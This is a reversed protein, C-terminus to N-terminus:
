GYSAWNKVGANSRVFQLQAMDPAIISDYTQQGFVPAASAGFWDEIIASYVSRFDVHHRLNGKITNQLDPQGCYVGGNVGGGLAFMVNAAGHDTGFSGNEKIRRGFESFTLILVRNLNGTAKMEYLFSDVDQSLNGLLRQHDGTNVVDGDQVQNAHTDYGGQSVYFIRTDFDARIIQSALKLGRGLSDNTYGNPALVPLAAATAIDASSAEVTNASRQLFDIDPNIVPLNNIDHIAALRAAADGGATLKYKSADTIAPPVYNSSGALM